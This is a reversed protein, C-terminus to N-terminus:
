PDPDEAADKDLKSAQDKRAEDREGSSEGSEIAQNKEQDHLRRWDQAAKSRMEELTQTGHQAEREVRLKLWDAIGKKRARELKDTTRAPSPEILHQNEEHPDARLAAVDAMDQPRGAALKAAVLDERSIFPVTLGPEVTHEVRRAWAPEFEVGGITSLIDVMVPPTGMRFFSGPESFDKASLGELPAGFQALASFVARGNEASPGVLIDLEKTARPQAHLSVAYGGVVLYEVRHANLVSLLEKFDRFM